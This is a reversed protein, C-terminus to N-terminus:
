GQTQERCLLRPCLSHTKNLLHDRSSQLWAQTRPGLDKLHDEYYTQVFGQVAGPGWFWQWKDRTKTVFPEVMKMVRAKVLSWRSNEPSPTPDLSESSTPAVFCALLMLSLCLSPLVWLRYRMPSMEPDRQGKTEQHEVRWGHIAQM